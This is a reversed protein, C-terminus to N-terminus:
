VRTYAIMVGILGASVTLTDATAAARRYVRFLALNSAAGTVGGTTIASTASTTMEFAGTAASQYNQTVEQGTGWTQDLTRGSSYQNWQAGWTVAGTSATAAVGITWVFTATVTGGDYDSPLMLNGQAYSTVADVFGLTYYDQLNTTTENLTVAAAGSTNSGWMGAGSLWIQGAPKSGTPGTAGTAGTPGTAGTSGKQGDLGDLGDQGSPGTFGTAGTAGTAGTQGRQGTSGPPGELGDLGDSGASGTAGTAGTAGTPGTAGTTGVGAGALDGFLDWTDTGTKVLTAGSYRARFLLSPTANVTVGGAGAVTVQGTNIQALDIRTGIPFAVVSNPPVTLAIPSSNSLTVLEGADGLVLTYTTNTQANITQAADYSPGTSGKNGDLGDLGDSGTSGTVGTAGTVGTPGTVGSVGTSGTAGTAGTSGTVGTVGASGTAGVNGARSFSVLLADGDWWPATVTQSVFTATLAAYTGSSTDVATINWTASQTQNRTTSIVITGKVTNTSGGIAALLASYDAGDSGTNSLRITTINNVQTDNGRMFGSGPDGATTLASYTYPFTLAGAAGTVGKNGALELMALVSDSTNLTGNTVGNQVDLDVVSAPAITWTDNIFTNLSSGNNASGGHLVARKRATDYVMVGRYRPYPLNLSTLQTWTTGDWKWMVNTLTGFYLDGGFMVVYGRDADYAIVAGDVNTPKTAPSQLTWDTGSWLYTSCTDITGFVGPSVHVLKSNTGDYVLAPWAAAAPTTSPTLQTWTSGDWKWTQTNNGGSQGGFWLAYGHNTDWAARGYYATRTGVPTLQTWDSGDWKWTENDASGSAIRGGSLIVVSNVHDYFMVSGYRASPAHTPSKLTWTAGDWVWTEASYTGGIVFGGFLVAQNNTEDYTMATDFRASPATPPQEQGWSGPPAISTVDWSKMTSQTAFNAVRLTGKITSTGGGLSNLLASWDTSNADTEHISVRTIASPKNFTL